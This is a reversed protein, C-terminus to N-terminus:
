EQPASPSPNQDGLLKEPLENLLRFLASDTSLILITQENVIAKLADFSRVMDHLAPNQAFVVNYKAAEVDGQARDAEATADADSLIIKSQYDADARIGEAQGKGASRIRAASGEREARMRRFVVETTAEPLEFRMIGVQKVDIGYDKLAQPRVTALIEDEIEGLKTKAIVTPPAAMTESDAEAGTESLETEAAQLKPMLDSFAHRGFVDNKADRVIGGLRTRVENLTEERDRKYVTTYFRKPDAVRWNYYSLVVVLEGDATKTEEHRDRDTHLRADLKAVSQIPWPAKWYLGPKDVVRVVKGFTTLVGVQGESVVYAITYLVFIVVLVAGTALALYNRRKKM